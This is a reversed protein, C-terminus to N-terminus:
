HLCTLLARSEEGFSFQRGGLMEARTALSEINKSLARQRLRTMEDADSPPIPELRM